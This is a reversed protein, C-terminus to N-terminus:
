VPASCADVMREAPVGSRENLSVTAEQRCDYVCFPSVFFLTHRKGPETNRMPTIPHTIYARPHSDFGRMRMLYRPQSGEGFGPARDCSAQVPHCTPYRHSYYFRFRPILIQLSIQLMRM